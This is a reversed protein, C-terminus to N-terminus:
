FLFDLEETRHELEYADLIETSTAEVFGTSSAADMKYLRPYGVQWCEVLLKAAEINARTPPENEIRFDLCKIIMNRMEWLGLRNPSLESEYTSGEKPNLRSSVRSDEKLASDIITPIDSIEVKPEHM